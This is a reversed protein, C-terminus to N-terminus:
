SFLAEPRIRKRNEGSGKLSVAKGTYIRYIFETTVVTPSCFILPRVHNVDKPIIIYLFLPSNRCIRFLNM